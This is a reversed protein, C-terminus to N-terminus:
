VSSLWRHPIFIAQGRSWVALLSIGHYCVWSASNLIGERWKSDDPTSCSKLLPCKKATIFKDKHCVSAVPRWTSSCSLFLSTFLPSFLKTDWLLYGSFCEIFGLHYMTRRPNELFLLSMCVLEALKIGCSNSSVALTRLWGWHRVCSFHSMTGLFSATKPPPLVYAHFFFM